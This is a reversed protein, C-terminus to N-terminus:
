NKRCPFMDFAGDNRVGADQLIARAWIGEVCLFLRPQLVHEIIVTAWLVPFTHEAVFTSFMCRFRIKFTVYAQFM